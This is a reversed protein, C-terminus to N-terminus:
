NTEMKEIFKELSRTLRAENKNFWSAFNSSQNYGVLERMVNWPGGISENYVQAFPLLAGDRIIDLMKGSTDDRAYKVKMAVEFYAPIVTMYSKASMAEMCAGVAETKSCTTPICFLSVGDQVRTLYKEQAEDYKPYPIIAYDSQMNRFYSNAFSLWAPVFLIQDNAFMGMATERDNQTATATDGYSKVGANQYLFSYVKEVLTALKEQEMDYYPVGNEDKKIMRINSSQLFADACNINNFWSGWQDKEDMKGDGNLDKCVLRSIQDM